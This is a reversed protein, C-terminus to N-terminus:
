NAMLYAGILCLIIAIITSTAKEKNLEDAKKKGEETFGVYKGGEAKFMPVFFICGIAFVIFGFTKM